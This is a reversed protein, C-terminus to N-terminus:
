IRVSSTEGYIMQYTNPGCAPSIQVLDYPGFHLVFNNKHGFFFFVFKKFVMKSLANVGNQLANRYSFSINLPISNNKYVVM